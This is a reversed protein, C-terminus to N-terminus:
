MYPVTIFHVMVKMKKILTIYVNSCQEGLSFKVLRLAISLRIYKNARTAYIVHNSKHSGILKSLNRQQSSTM